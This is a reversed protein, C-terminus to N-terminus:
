EQGGQAPEPNSNEIYAPKIIKYQPIVPNAKIKQIADEMKEVTLRSEDPIFAGIYPNSKKFEKMNLKEGDMTKTQEGFKSECWRVFNIKNVPENSDFASKLYDGNDHYYITGRGNHIRMFAILFGLDNECALLRDSIEKVTWNLLENKM